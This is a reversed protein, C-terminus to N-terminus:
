DRGGFGIFDAGPLPKPSVARVPVNSNGGFGRMALANALPDLLRGV